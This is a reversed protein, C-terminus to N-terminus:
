EIRARQGSKERVIGWIGSQGIAPHLYLRVVYLPEYCGHYYFGHFDSSENVRIDGPRAGCPSEGLFVLSDM